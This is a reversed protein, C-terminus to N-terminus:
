TEVFSQYERVVKPDPEADIPLLMLAKATGPDMPTDTGRCDTMNNKDLIQEIHAQQHLKLWRAEKNREVQVGTVVEPNVIKTIKFTTNLTIDIQNLGGGEGTGMLDDVHAGLHGEPGSNTTYM